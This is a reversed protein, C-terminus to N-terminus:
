SRYKTCKCGGVNKFKEVFDVGYHVFINDNKQIDTIAKIWLEDRKNESKFVKAIQANDSLIVM